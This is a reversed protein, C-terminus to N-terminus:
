THDVKWSTNAAAGLIRTGKESIHAILINITIQSFLWDSASPHSSSVSRWSLYHLEGIDKNIGESLVLISVDTHQQVCALEVYCSDQLMGFLDLFIRSVCVFFFLYYCPIRM